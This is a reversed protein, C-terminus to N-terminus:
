EAGKNHVRYRPGRLALLINEFGRITHIIRWIAYEMADAEHDLADPGKGKRPKGQDDFDRTELCMKLKNLGDFVYLQKLRFAKNVALVRETIPPNTKDWSIDIDYEDLEEKYGALIEKGSSDPILYIKNHPFEKRLLRPAEGPSAWHFTRVIYLVNARAIVAVAANYGTNMDQGVYICDTDRVTFPTYIHQRPDFEYYVRGTSLNVFEGELFARAEEPTYLRQLNQLQKPSLSTNDQTRGRIKIYGIGKQKFYEVLMYTGGLGQATTSITIFPDRAKMLPTEPLIIRAREQVAKIIPMVHEAPTEDLEDILVGNFNYAYIEDPSSMPLYIFTVTGVVFTGKMVNETYNIGGQNLASRLDKLVTQHLLKISVGVIGFTVYYGKYAQILFLCLYVVSASKGCGFGGILFTYTIDTYKRVAAIFAEQHRFLTANYM